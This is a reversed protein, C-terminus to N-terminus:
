IPAPDMAHRRLINRVTIKDIRHGLNALAGQIRRYGWSLNEEAMRVVLQEVDEPVCPRGLQRRHQSGDFKQAILRQYWRMLTDPTAITAMEKLRARGLPHALAALRRGGLHAKLVRNEERLYTIVQQQHRQIWGAFIALLLQLIM